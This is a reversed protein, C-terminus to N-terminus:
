RPQVYKLLEDYDLRVGVKVITHWFFIVVKHLNLIFVRGTEWGGLYAETWPRGTTRCM